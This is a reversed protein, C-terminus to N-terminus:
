TSSSRRTPWVKASLPHHPSPTVTHDAGWKPVEEATPLFYDM